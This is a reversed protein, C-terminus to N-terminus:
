NSAGKPSGKENPFEKTFKIGDCFVKRKGLYNSLVKCQRSCQPCTYQDKWQGGQRVTSGHYWSNVLTCEIKEHAM